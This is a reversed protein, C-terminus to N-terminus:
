VYPREGAIENYKDIVERGSSILHNTDKGLIAFDYMEYMSPSFSESNRELVGVPIDASQVENVIQDMAAEVKESCAGPFENLSGALDVSGIFVADFGGARMIEDLNQVGSESEIQAIITISDNADRVTEVLESEYMTARSTGIGRFGDPPYRVSEMMARVDDENQIRPVMVGAVGADLAKKLVVPDNEAVRIVTETSGPAAEVARAMHTVTEFNTPSHETDIMVFDFGLGACIEAVVPHGISIWTGVPFQYKAFKQKLM